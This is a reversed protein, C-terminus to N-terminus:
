YSNIQRLLNNKLDNLANIEIANNKITKNLKKFSDTVLLMTEYDPIIIPHTKVIDTKLNNFVSGNSSSILNQRESIFYYYMFEKTVHNYNDIILWGDHVCATIEVIMPLGPSASNSVIMTGPTVIRSSSVGEMIICESTTFLYKTLSSSADSIKVWPMGNSSIYKQIPRPSAGRAVSVVDGITAIKWNSPMQGDNFYFDVFYAKFIAQAQSELNENINRKLEIRREITNYANVIRRQEDIAPIPLEINCMEEWDFIERVSGHSHFRAYRDFEHRKFWLNLYEPLLTDTNSIEFVTYAQSVLAIDYDCQLAIGIKDGRRSTDPIYCFQGRRIKKYGRWDTGVTNAISKIFCKDVSVGLLEYHIDEVNREDIQRIYPGLKKCNSKM